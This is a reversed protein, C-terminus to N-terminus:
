WISQSDKYSSHCFTLPSKGSVWTWRRGSLQIRTKTFFWFNITVICPDATLISCKFSFSPMADCGTRLGEQFQCVQKSV